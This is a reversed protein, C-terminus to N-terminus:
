WLIGDRREEIPITKTEDDESNVHNGLFSDKGTIPVIRENKWVLDEELYFSDINNSDDENNNSDDNNNILNDGYEHVLTFIRRRRGDDKKGENKNTISIPYFIRGGNECCYADAKPLYPIRNWLTTSRMGSILVLKKNRKLRLEQCLRLTELSIIGGMGTSSSPLELVVSDNDNSTSNKPYHVLTGDVDSFIIDINSSNNNM